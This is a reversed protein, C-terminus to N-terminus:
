QNFTNTELHNSPKMQLFYPNKDIGKQSPGCKAKTIKM